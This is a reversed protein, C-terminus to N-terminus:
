RRQLTRWPGKGRTRPLLKSASLPFGPVGDEEDSPMPISMAPMDRAALATAPIEMFPRMM